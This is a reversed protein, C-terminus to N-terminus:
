YTTSMNCHTCPELLARLNLNVKNNSEKHRKHKLILLTHHVKQLYNVFAVAVDESSNLAIDVLEIFKSSGGGFPIVISIRENKTHTLYQCKLYTTLM